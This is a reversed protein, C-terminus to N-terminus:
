NRWLRPLPTGLATLIRIIDHRLAASTPAVLRGVMLGNWASVGVEGSFVSQMARLVEVTDDDGPIKLLTAIAVGGGAVARRALCKAIEGDLHVCDAFVLAGDVRVRWRDFLSGSMVSEGTASRGFVIAELMLLKADGALGVDINRRLRMRDFLITEQPLWAIAAGSGGELRVNIETDPGLSRYVKEAAASTVTLRARAAAKM